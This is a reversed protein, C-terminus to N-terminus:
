HYSLMQHKIKELAALVDEISCRENPSEKSCNLAVKMIKAVCELKGSFYEEDDSKLLNPDIIQELSRTMSDTVWSRLSLNEGFIECNPMTRTFVEMLMIGYSYVDCKRSLFGESGYEPAMYGLTALTQTYTNSDGHDLLKSIGFDCLHGVMDQDLLVNSPKLDCHVIPTSSGYHLYQLSCAVDIMINLRQMIDLFYNHSYLWKELSGNSMFDLVLAKFDDNSCSSIVKTLNRHRLNRLVECEADFSKFAGEHQLNFVKIAVIRGNGLTGKYVSGFSGTGLLNRENFEDTAHLLEYYSIREQTVVSPLDVVAPFKEKKRYRFFVFGLIISLLVSTMGLLIFLLILKKKEKGQKRRCTPVNFRPAGCLGKNSIFSLSTFNKFPGKSPIEGNLNNFSVNFYTLYQLKVLTTPILGSLNNNSLDLYELSLIKGISDPISGRFGNNALSLNQLRELNGITAPLGGTLYNSSLDIFISVKLNGLEKGVTGSLFNSSLNLRLLDKLNWLTTPISSNLRNSDLELTRLSTVNGLCEPISGSFQNQSLTLYALSRLSCLKDPLIGSFKNGAVSIGQLKQLDKITDPISGILQNRHLLLEILGSLNGIRSPIRGKINCGPVYINEVSNSLNGISDPLIGDLPNNAVQITKLNKCNTLSTIFSLSPSSPDNKLNNTHICLSQLLRLNGISSPIYGRFQNKSLELFELQSCNSISNPIVGTLNNTPLILQKLSPLRYNINQPLNGSLHNGPISLTILMSLNFIGMPIPGSLSNEDLYLSELNRLNGLDQPIFGKLSNNGMYLSELLTLNGIEKPIDGSFNNVSLSLTRLASCQFLSLPIKGNLKNQSVDLWNLKRSNRCMPDPLNGSLNNGVLSVVELSFINFIEYPMPGSLQNYDLVLIKLNDLNGIEKPITGQLPNHSFRLDELTSINSISPPIFGTFSNNTLYLFQLKNAFSGFWSPIEGSLHNVGLNLFRLRHLRSLEQPIEGNFNNRSLDLSVLFSLNGLNPPIMGTIGMNSINLATVRQRRAGCTVGIWQCVPYSVSWNKAIIIHNNNNNNSESIIQSKLSLLAYQDTTINTKTMALCTIFLFQIICKDFNSFMDDSIDDSEKNADTFNSEEVDNKANEGYIANYNYEVLALKFRPDFVVAIALVLCCEDWYKEFKEKMPGAMNRIFDHDSNEWEKLKLMSDNSSANDVVTFFLKKDLNWELIIDSM